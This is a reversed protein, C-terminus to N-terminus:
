WGLVDSGTLGAGYLSQKRDEENAGWFLGGNSTEKAQGFATALVAIIDMNRRVPDVMHSSIDELTSSKNHLGIRINASLYWTIGNLKDNQVGTELGFKDFVGLIRNGNNFWDYTLRAKPGWVTAVESAHFYSGGVYGVLGNIFEYGMEADAGPLAKELQASNPYKVTSGIPKYVNGGIFWNHVWCEGGLAVQNFYERMNTKKRDFSGYFGLMKKGDPFLHRYGLHANGGVSTGTRKNAKFETFFLDARSRQWVPAFLDAIVAAASVYSPFLRSGKFQLYPTYKSAAKETFPLVSKAFSIENNMIFFVFLVLALKKVDTKKM